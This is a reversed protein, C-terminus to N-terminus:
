SKLHTLFLLYIIIIQDLVYICDLLLYLLIVRIYEDESKYRRYIIPESNDGKM